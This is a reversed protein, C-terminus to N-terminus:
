HRKEGQTMVLKTSQHSATSKGLKTVCESLIGTLNKKESKKGSKCSVKMSQKVSTQSVASKLCHKKFKLQSGKKSLM